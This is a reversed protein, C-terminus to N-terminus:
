HPAPTRAVAWVSVRAAGRAKLVRALEHVTAGTTVVDDVIAVHLGEVKADCRFADHLNRAREARDLGPQPLTERVRVLATAACRLRLARAVPKALELAQNFGRERLRGRSLPPVVVVDATADRLCRALRAALWRGAALDGAFKFRQVLRDLPFRYEFCARADDFLPPRVACSGCTGGGALPLACRICAAEIRPLAAECDACLADGARALCLV